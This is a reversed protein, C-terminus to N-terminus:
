TNSWRSEQGSTRATPTFAVDHNPQNEHEREDATVIAAHETGIGTVAVATAAAIATVAADARADRCAANRTARRAVAGVVAHEILDAHQVHQRGVTDIM